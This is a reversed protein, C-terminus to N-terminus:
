EARAPQTLRAIDSLFSFASSGLASILAQISDTLRVLAREPDFEPAGLVEAGDAMLFELPEDSDALAILQEPYLWIFLPHEDRMTIRARANLVGAYVAVPSVSRFTNSWPDFPATGFRRYVLAAPAVENTFETLTIDDPSHIVLTRDLDLLRVDSGTEELTERQVTAAFTEEGEAWGGIGTLRLLVRGREFVPPRVGLLFRGEDVLLLSSARPTAPDVFDFLRTHRSSTSAPHIPVSHPIV